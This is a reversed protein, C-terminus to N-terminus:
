SVLNRAKVVECMKDVMALGLEQTRDLYKQLASAIGSEKKGEEVLQKAAKNRAEPSSDTRITLLIGGSDKGLQTLVFNELCSDALGNISEMRKTQEKSVLFNVFYFEIEKVIVDYDAAGDKGGKVSLRQVASFRKQLNRYNDDMVRTAQQKLSNSLRNLLEDSSTDIETTRRSYGDFQMNLTRMLVMDDKYSLSSSFIGM